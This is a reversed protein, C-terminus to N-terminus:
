CHGRGWSACTTRIDTATRLSVQGGGDPLVFQGRGLQRTMGVNLLRSGGPLVTMTEGPALLTGPGFPYGFVYSDRHARPMAFQLVHEGLDVTGGSVNTLTISEPTKPHVEVRIAGALPDACAVACPYIQSTRLDGQPDFLYAGDGMQTKDHTVNEFASSGQCWYFDGASNTGCGIHVRITGFAPVSAGAPFGYGPKHNADYNLWSDRIWWGALPLPRAGANRIEVWEGDLNKSDPGDSDWNVSVSVPLDEDPGAGCSAPDYLGHKALAAQEALVHYEGNHAWETENPLWLALGQEMELKALDRWHGGVEVWVSRRLRHRAGSESSARQAALRVRWHSGRIYHEVLATAALGHCEGRRRAAYKSYRHLEMANIGTFRVLQVARSPDDDLKVKITDGDAIFTAKADWFICKPSKAGEVCPAKFDGQASAAAPLALALLVTLLAAPLMRRM